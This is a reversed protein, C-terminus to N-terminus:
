FWSRIDKLTGNNSFGAVTWQWAGLSECKDWMGFVNVEAWCGWLRLGSCCWILDWIESIYWWSLLGLDWWRFWTHILNLIIWGPIFNEMEPGVLCPFMNDEELICHHSLCLTGTVFTGMGFPLFHFSFLLWWDWAIKSDLLALKILNWSRTILMQTELSWSRHKLNWGRPNIKKKKFLLVYKCSHLKIM